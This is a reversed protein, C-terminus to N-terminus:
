HCPQAYLVSVDKLLGLQLYLGILQSRAWGLMENLDLTTMQPEVMM